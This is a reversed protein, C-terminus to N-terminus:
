TGLGVFLMAAGSGKIREVLEAREVQTLQRFKSPEMGAVVLTPYKRSLNRLMGELIRPTAGYFFVPLGEKAAQECLYLTLDPGYTRETLPARYLLNLAWRVPQGDPLTLSLRNLRYKHQPDLAGSMLGHVALAAVSCPRRGRAARLVQEMAGEYDVVNVMIGLVNSKGLDIMM